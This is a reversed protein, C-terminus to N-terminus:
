RSEGPQLAGATTIFDAFPGAAGAPGYFRPRALPRFGNRKLLTGHKELLWRVFRAANAAGAARDPISLTWTIPAGKVSFAASSGPKALSVEAGSYDADPSGLNVREDLRIYRMDHAICISRYAFAYDIEGTKLLPTLRSVHDVVKVCKKELADHLGAPGIREQLKWALLTRYGIPGQNEDVRAIRTGADLLVRPWDREAEAIRPALKGVALVVEDNAFDLRWSCVGGLLESVLKADALMVLDAKRGLGSLKHCVVQSGSAETRLNLGLERRCDRRAAELVPTLGSAHFVTLDEVEARDGDGCGALLM